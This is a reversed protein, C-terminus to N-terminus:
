DNFISVAHAIGPMSEGQQVSLTSQLAGTAVLLVRQVKKELLQKYIYGCFTL